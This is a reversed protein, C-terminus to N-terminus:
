SKRRINVLALLGSLFVLATAPESVVSKDTDTLFTLKQGLDLFTTPKWDINMTGFLDPASFVNTFSASVDTSSSAFPRGVNSGATYEISDADDFYVGAIGANVELGVIGISLSDNSLVWDGVFMNSAGNYDGFTDGTLSLSWGAGTVGGSTAGTAAWTLTESSGNGFMATVQIGSMDAGNINSIIGAQSFLSTSLLVSGVILKKLM